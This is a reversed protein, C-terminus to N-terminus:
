WDIGHDHLRHELVAHEAAGRDPYRRAGVVAPPRGPTAARVAVAFGDGLRVIAYRPLDPDPTRRVFDLVEAIDADYPPFPRARARDILEATVLPRVRTRLIEADQISLAM